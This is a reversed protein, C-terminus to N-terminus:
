QSSYIANQAEETDVNDRTIVVYGTPFRKPISATDGSIAALAFEICKQGMQYPLQAIVIDNVENRLDEIAAEPADFNAVKVVGTLGANKVAQAAGEASFLNTGFIGALDPERQLVAATQEAARAANDENYDVGVLTVAGGTAEIAERCGQERQDTTSIGPRVNQIYMKGSGGISEIIAECAIRGGEVNDSGVYSLPFTVDGTTYDGATDGIFTDVSIIHIGRDFAAKMPEILAQRDTAAICIAAPNQAVVADLIPRQLTADFQAPGDAIVNVGMEEAAARLGKEMTVYFGDGRVGYVLAVTPMDGAAAEGEPAAAETAAPEAAAGTQAAPAVPTCAALALLAVALLAFMTLRRVNGQFM